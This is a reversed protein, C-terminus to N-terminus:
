LAKGSFGITEMGAGVGFSIATRDLEENLKQFTRKRTGRQLAATTLHALGATKDADFLGGARLRGRLTVSPNNPNDKVLITLGNALTIRQVSEPTIPLTAM